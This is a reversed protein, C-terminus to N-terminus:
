RKGKARVKTVQVHSPACRYLAAMDERVWDRRSGSAGGLITRGGPLQVKVTYHNLGTYLRPADEACLGAQCTPCRGGITDPCRACPVGCPLAQPLYAEPPLQSGLKARLAALADDNDAM